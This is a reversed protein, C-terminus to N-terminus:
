VAKVFQQSEKLRSKAVEHEPDINLAAKWYISAEEYRENQHHIAAIRLHADLHQADAKVAASFDSIAAEPKEWDLYLLGRQYWAPAFDTNWRLAENLPGEAQEPHGLAIFCAGTFTLAQHHHPALSTVDKLDDLASKWRGMMMLAEARKIKALQSKPAIELLVNADDFAAQEQDLAMYISCRNLRARVHSSDISLAEDYHSKATVLDGARASLNGRIYSLVAGSGNISAADVHRQADELRNTDLCLLAKETWVAPEDEKMLREARTLSEDALELQQLLRQTRALGLWALGNERDMDIAKSFSMQAQSLLQQDTIDTGDRTRDATILHLRGEVVHLQTNKSGTPAGQLIDWAETLRGERLRLDAIAALVEGDDSHENLARDITEEAKEGEGLTLLLDAKLMILEIGGSGLAVAHTAAKSAEKLRPTCSLLRAQLAWAEGNQRDLELCKNVSELALSHDEGNMLIEARRLWDEARFPDEELALDIDKLAAEMSGARAMLGSLLSRDAPTDLGLARLRQVDKQADDDGLQVLLHAHRRLLIENDPDLEIQAEIWHRQELKNGLLVSVHELLGLTTSHGPALEYASEFLSKARHTRGSSLALLGAKRATNPSIEGLDSIAEFLMEALSSITSDIEPLYTEDANEPIFQALKEKSLQFEELNKIGEISINIFSKKSTDITMDQFQNNIMLDIFDNLTKYIEESYSTQSIIKNIDGSLSWGDLGLNTLKIKVLQDYNYKSIIEEIPSNLITSNAINRKDELDFTPLELFLGRKTSASDLIEIFVKDINKESDRTVYYSSDSGSKVEVLFLIVPRSYGIIPISLEKFKNVVLSQNFKVELYSANDINKIAYSIIFDKRSSGSNIIRWINSPSNSGSVRYVLNNFASNISSEIKNSSEIPEYITFLEEFEKGFSYNSFIILIVLLHKIFNNRM